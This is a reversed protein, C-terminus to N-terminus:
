RGDAETISVGGALLAFPQRHPWRMSVVLLIADKAIALAEYYRESPNDVYAVLAFSFNAFHRTWEAGHYTAAHNASALVRQM